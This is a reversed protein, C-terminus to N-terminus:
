RSRSSGTRRASGGGNEYAIIKQVLRQAEDVSGAPLRGIALDPLLDEGNVSAYAPDSVTWLYSTKVPFGPLWDRVGTQLYDKPDYSADGLLLVYRLSPTAWSHYAYEVFEKIAQPSVEGHGFQEYVEELSAVKTVLGQSERLDLLPQAAALFSQPGVLLYDAQNAPSKLGSPSLRKVLPRRVTSTVLYSRGAEVLIGLGSPTVSAGRLWRPADTTDLVFSAASAGEIKAFGTAGFRGELTGQEALLRRPYAVSFRNLFVMSSSAGADGVNELELTNTGEQLVGPELEVELSKPQKGDWISEGVFTGNVRVRVHHDLVGEFDSAGQMEVSMRGLGVSRTTSLEDVRFTFSKSGPSVVLDWQWQDPAELLGAQYYHNEEKRVTKLYEFVPRSTSPALTEEGMALGSANTELEYVADAYPNLSSGESLFYLSSGPGFPLGAPEMHFAVDRGQRSLRLSSAPFGRPRRSSTPPFVDEYDVRHLGREKVTIQAVVGSPAHSPREVRRRGRSGGRSTEQAEVETFELRVLLRRSLVLGTGDWRLPFLLM